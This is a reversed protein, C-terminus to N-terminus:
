KMPSKITFIRLTKLCLLNRNAARLVFPQRTEKNLQRALEIKMPEKEGHSVAGIRAAQFTASNVLAKTKYNLAVQIAGLSFILFGVTCVLMETTSGGFFRRFGLRAFRSQTRSSSM